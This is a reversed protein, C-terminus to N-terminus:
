ATQPLDYHFEPLKEKAALLHCLRGDKRKETLQKQFPSKAPVRL